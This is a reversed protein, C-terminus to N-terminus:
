FYRQNASVQATSNKIENIRSTRSFIPNISCCYIIMCICVFKKGFGYIIGNTFHSTGGGSPTEKTFGISDWVLTSFTGPVINPPYPKESQTIFNALATDLEMTQTYSLS